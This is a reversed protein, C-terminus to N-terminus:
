PNVSRLMWLNTEPTLLALFFYHFPQQRKGIESIQVKVDMNYSALNSRTLAM